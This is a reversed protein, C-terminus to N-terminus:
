ADALSNFFRSLRTMAEDLAAHTVSGFCIRLHGEGAAGYFSGSEVVVKAQELITEALDQSARGTGSIDPFAYITGEPVPCRVGPMQNLARVVIDRKVRDDAVMAEVDAAGDTVAALGGYQIFTNVHTVENASIKMLAPILTADAALYGLRWGDMAYAKTFAFTSVTRERMGPLAAISVHKREGFTIFEYVEDSLVFLDHDIAVRALGELEARTFVRGTPNCPNILVIMKTRPTIAAEVWDARISFDAAADLPVTVVKGGALEVKGVHQPYYPELLIVEDGPDVLAFIAAFSAQTLGNTVIIEDPSAEIANFAALKDALARRFAPEGQLDSYHVKGAQLAAIAADKIHQPTDHIPKGVELHILDAGAAEMAAARGFMGFSKPSTGTIRRALKPM